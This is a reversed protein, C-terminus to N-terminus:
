ERQYREKDNQSLAEYPVKAEDNLTGWMVSM